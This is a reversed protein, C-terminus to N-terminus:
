DVVYDFIKPEAKIGELLEISTTTIIATVHPHHNENLYKLMPNAAERFDASNSVVPISLLKVQQQAYDEAIREIELGYLTMISQPVNHKEMLKRVEKNM